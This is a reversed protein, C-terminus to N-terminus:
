ESWRREELAKEEAKRASHEESSSLRSKFYGSRILALAEQRRREREEPTLGALRDPAPTNSLAQLERGRAGFEGVAQPRVYKERIAQEALEDTTRRQETAARTLIREIEPSLTLTM